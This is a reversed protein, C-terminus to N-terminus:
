GFLENGLEDSLRKKEQPDDTNRMRNVLRYLAEERERQTQLGFRLLTNVLQDLGIDLSRSKAEIEECLDLPLTLTLSRDGDSKRPAGMNTTEIM